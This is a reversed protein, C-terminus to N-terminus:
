LVKGLPGLDINLDDATLGFVDRLLAIKEQLLCFATGLREVEDDTLTGRDMRRIAERELLQRILEVLTLVLRAVGAATKSPDADIRAPLAPRSERSRAALDADAPAVLM